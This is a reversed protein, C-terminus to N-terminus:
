DDSLLYLGNKGHVPYGYEKGQWQKEGIAKDFRKLLDWCENRYDLDLEPNRHDLEVIRRADQLEQLSAKEFWKASYLTGKELEKKLSNWLEIIADKHKLGLITMILTTISIGALLIKVKNEKVWAIFGKKEPLDDTAQEMIKEKDM